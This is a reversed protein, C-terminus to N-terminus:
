AQRKRWCRGVLCLGCLALMALTSPEPVPTATLGALSVVFESNPKGGGKGNGNGGGGGNDPKGGGNGGGGDDTGGLVKDIWKNFSSVRTHGSIDGYDSDVVGDYAAGFSHIGILLESGGFNAFVGGGSDGPAILYELPLPENSGWVNETGAPNDFDSMFVRPTRGPTRLWVDIDNRGARKEGDFDVAGTLGTGTMGFGVSTGVEGLEDSGTYREAPTIGPVAADLEVLGIDYGKLLDGDWKPHSIWSKATYPEGGIGFSLSTTDSVVHGATL